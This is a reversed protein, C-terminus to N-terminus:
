LGAMNGWVYKGTDTGRDTQKMAGAISSNTVYALSGTLANDVAVATELDVVDAWNMAPGYDVTGVGSVNLIGTPEGGAGSGNYAAADIKLALAKAIDD